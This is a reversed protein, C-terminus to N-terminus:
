GACRARRRLKAINRQPTRRLPRGNEGGPDHGRAAGRVATGRPRRRPVRLGRPHSRARIRQRARTQAARRARGRRARLPERRAAHDAPRAQHAAPEVADRRATRRPPIGAGLGADPFADGEHPGDTTGRARGAHQCRARGSASSGNGGDDGGMGLGARDAIAVLGLVMRCFPRSCSRSRRDSRRRRTRSGARGRASAPGQEGVRAGTRGTESPTTRSWGMAVVTTRSRARRRHADGSGVPLAVRERRRRAVRPQHRRDDRARHAPRDPRHPRVLPARAGPRGGTAAGPGRALGELLRAAPVPRRPLCGSAAAAHPVGARDAALDGDVARHRGGAGRRVAAVAGAAM